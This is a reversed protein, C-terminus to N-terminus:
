YTVTHVLDVTSTMIASQRMGGRRLSGTSTLKNEENPRLSQIEEDDKRITRHNEKENRDVTTTTKEQLLNRNNINKKKNNNTQYPVGSIKETQKAFPFRKTKRVPEPTKPKEIYISQEPTLNNEKPLLQLEDDINTHIPKGESKNYCDSDDNESVNSLNLDAEKDTNKIASTFQGKNNRPQDKKEIWDGSKEQDSPKLPGRKQQLHLANRQLKISVFNQLM